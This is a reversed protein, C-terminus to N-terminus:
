HNAEAGMEEMARGGSNGLLRAWSMEQTPQPLSCGIQPFVTNQAAHVDMGLEGNLEEKSQALSRDPEQPLKNMLRCTSM